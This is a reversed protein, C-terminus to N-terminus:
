KHTKIKPFVSEGNILCIKKESHSNQQHREVLHSNEKLSHLNMKKMLFRFFCYMGTKGFDKSVAWTIYKVTYQIEHEQLEDM